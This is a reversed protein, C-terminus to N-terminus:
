WIRFGTSVNSLCEKNKFMNSVSRNEQVEHPCWSVLSISHLSTCMDQMRKWIEREDVFNFPCSLSISLATDSLSKIHRISTCIHKEGICKPKSSHTDNIYLYTERWYMKTQFQTYRYFVTFTCIHQQYIFM